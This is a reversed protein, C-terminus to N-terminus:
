IFHSPGMQNRCCVIGLLADIDSSSPNQRCLAAAGGSGPPQAASCLRTVLDVARGRGETVYQEETALLACHRLGHVSRFLPGKNDHVAAPYASVAELDIGVLFIVSQKAAAPTYITEQGQRISYRPLPLWTSSV